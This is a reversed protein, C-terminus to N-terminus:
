KKAKTKELKPPRFHAIEDPVEPEPIEEHFILYAFLAAFPASIIAAAIGRLLASFINVGNLIASLAAVSFFFLGVVVPIKKLISTM